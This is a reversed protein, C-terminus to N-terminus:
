EIEEEQEQVLNITLLGDRILSLGLKEMVEGPVTVAIGEQNKEGNNGYYFGTLFSKLAANELVTRLVEENKTPDDETLGKMHRLEASVLGSIMTILEPLDLDGIIEENVMGQDIAESIEALYSNLDEAM